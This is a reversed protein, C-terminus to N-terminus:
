IRSNLNAPLGGREGRYIYDLTVGTVNCLRAAEDIQPRQRANEWQSWTNPRINATRCIEAASMGLAMRVARLRAAIQDLQSQPPALKPM